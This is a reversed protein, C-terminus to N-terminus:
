LLALMKLFRENDRGKIAEMWFINLGKLRRKGMSLEKLSRGRRLEQLKGWVSM